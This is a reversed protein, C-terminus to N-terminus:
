SRRTGTYRYGCADGRPSTQTFTMTLTAVNGSRAFSGEFTDIYGSGQSFAFTDATTMTGTNMGWITITAGTVSVSIADATPDSCTGSDNRIKEYSTVQYEGSWGTFSDPGEASAATRLVVIVLLAGNALNIVTIQTIPAPTPQVVIIRGPDFGPWSDGTYKPESKALAAPLLPNGCACRVRPVGRDDVLVSTGTQLVSQFPTARGNEFGHNTVRTDGTLIVPTLSEVYPRVDSIDLVDAFAARKDPNDELFSILQEKDCVGLENSGGYLGPQDGAVPTLGGDSDAVTPAASPLTSTGPPPPPVSTPADAPVASPTWPFPGESAVSQLLVEGESRDKRIVILLYAVGVLAVITVLAMAIM